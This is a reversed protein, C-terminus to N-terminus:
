AASSRESCYSTSTATSSGAPPPRSRCKKPRWGFRPTTAAGSTDHALDLDPRLGSVHTLLHLVTIDEKGYRGFEPIFTAVRDSLRVRGEEVLTMISTTTAVVKTLSAVDFITDLTMPERAPVLARHGYAKQYITRDGRGVLLVAGPLKGEAIANEIHRDVLALRELDFDSSTGAAGARPQAFLPLPPAAAILTCLALALFTASRRM